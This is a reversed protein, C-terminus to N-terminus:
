ARRAWAARAGPVGPASLADVSAEWLEDAFAGDGEAQARACLSILDALEAIAPLDGLEALRSLGLAYLADGALLRLDPEMGGFARPEGYHMLYGEYVAEVVFARDADLRDAFRPPGPEAVAHAAILPDVAAVIEVLPSIV